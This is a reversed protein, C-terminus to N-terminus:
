TLYTTDAPRSARMVLEANPLDNDSARAQASARDHGHGTWRGVLRERLLDVDCAVMVTMDFLPALGSWPREELLLYNGETIIVRHSRTVLRAGARSLELDRDFVPIAIEDGSTDRIRRLLAAYGGADFTHPAGKRPLDGRPGLLADDFHFGDMPVIVPTEGREILERQLASALTSKGAGPPGALAVVFRSRGASATAVRDALAGVSTIASPQAM